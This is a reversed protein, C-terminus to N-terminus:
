MGDWRMVELDIEELERLMWLHDPRISGVRAASYGTHNAPFHSESRLSTDIAEPVGTYTPVQLATPGLAEKALRRAKARHGGKATRDSACIKRRRKTGVKPSSSPLPQSSGPPPPSTRGIRPAMWRLPSM